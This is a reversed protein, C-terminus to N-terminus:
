EYITWNIVNLPIATPTPTPPLANVSVTTAGGFGQERLMPTSSTSWTLNDVPDFEGIFIDSFTGGAGGSTSGGPIIIFNGVSCGTLARAATPITGGSGWTGPVDGTTLQAVRM